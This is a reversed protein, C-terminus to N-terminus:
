QGTAQKIMAVGVLGEGSPITIVDVAVIVAGVVVVGTKGPNDVVWQGTDKTNQWAKDAGWKVGNWASDYWPRSVPVPVRIQVPPVPVGRPQIPPQPIPSRKPVRVPIPRRTCCTRPIVDRCKKIQSLLQNVQIQHGEDMIGGYCLRTWAYRGALNKVIRAMNYINTACLRASPPGGKCKPSYDSYFIRKLGPTCFSYNPKVKPGLLQALRENPDPFLPILGLPDVLATPRGGVYQYRNMGDGYGIPDTTIWRGLTPHYYRYRVHYLGTEPDHRCGCYLIENDHTTRSQEDSWDPEYITVKGYPDYMYREAVAGAPTVLATTNFQADHTYYLTENLIGDPTESSDRFRVVASDIYDAGWVYQKHLTDALVPEAGGTRTKTAKRVELVQWSENYYYERVTWNDGSPATYKRIRRHRGDYRYEATTTEGDAVKVLRNWADYTYNSTTATEAGPKPGATMNGAADYAPDIWNPTGSIDDPPQNVTDEIENAKNHARAQDLDWPQTTAGSSKFASWNGVADLTWEQIRSITAVTDLPGASITHSRNHGHRLIKNGGTVM